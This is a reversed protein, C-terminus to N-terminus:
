INKPRGPKIPALADLHTKLVNSDMAGVLAVGIRLLESKKITYGAGLCARKVEGIVAYEGAPMTFSDRVLKPKRTKDRTETLGPHPDHDAIAVSAQPPPPLTSPPTSLRTTVPSAAGAPKRARVNPSPPAKKPVAVVRAAPRGPSKLPKHPPAPKTPM